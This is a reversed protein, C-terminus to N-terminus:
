ALPALRLQEQSQNVLPWCRQVRLLNYRKTTPNTIGKGHITMVRPLQASSNNSTVIGDKSAAEGANKLAGSSDKQGEPDHPKTVTESLLGDSPNEPKVNGRGKSLDGEAQMENVSKNLGSISDSPNRFALFYVAIILGTLGTLTYAIGKNRKSRAAARRDAEENLMKEVKLWDGERYTTQDYQTLAQRFIREISDDSKKSM